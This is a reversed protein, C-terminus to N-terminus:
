SCSHKWKWLQMIHLTGKGKKREEEIGGDKKQNNNYLKEYHLFLCTYANPYFIDGM